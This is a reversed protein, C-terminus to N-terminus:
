NRIPLIIQESCLKKQKKKVFFILKASYSALNVISVLIKLKHMSHSKKKCILGANNKFFQLNKTIVPCILASQSPISGM